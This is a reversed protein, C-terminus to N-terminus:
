AMTFKEHCGVHHRNSKHGADHGYTPSLPFHAAQTRSAHAHKPFISSSVFPSRTFHANGPCHLLHARLSGQSAAHGRPPVLTKALLVEVLQALDGLAEERLEAPAEPLPLGARRHPQGPHATGRTKMLRSHVRSIM